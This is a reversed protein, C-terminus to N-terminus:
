PIMIGNQIWGHWHPASNISPNVTLNPPIGTVEWLNRDGGSRDTTFWVGAKNPLMIGWSERDPQDLEPQRWCDGGEVNDPPYWNSPMWGKPTDIVRLNTSM